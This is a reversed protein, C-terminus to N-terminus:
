AATSPEVDDAPATFPQGCISCLIPGLDLVARHVRFRRPEPCGCTASVGNYSTRNKTPGTAPEPHRYATLANTLDTLASAYRGATGPALAHPSWGTRSDAEVTLGIEEALERFAKNHYRGQRSTDQVNRATALGHAAAHLVTILLGEADTALGEGGIFLEGQLEEGVQWRGPAFHGLHQGGRREGAAGLTVVVAPVEPHHRQIAAWTTEIATQLPLTVVPVTGPRTTTMTTTTMAHRM